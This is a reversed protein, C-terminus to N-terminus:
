VQPKCVKSGDRYRIAEAKKNTIVQRPLTSTLLQTECLKSIRKELWNNCDKKSAPGFYEFHASGPLNILTYM